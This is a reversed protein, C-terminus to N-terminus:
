HTTPRGVVTFHNTTPGDLGLYYLVGLVGSAVTLSGFQTFGNSMVFDLSVDIISGAPCSIAFINQAVADSLWSAALSKRPPTFVLGKTCTLGLPLTGDKVEDKNYDLGAAWVVDTPVVTGSAVIPTPWVTIKKLKVASAIPNVTSNTVSCVAGCVGAMALASVPVSTSTSPSQFRFVGMYVPTCELTPPLASAGKSGGRMSKGALMAPIMERSVKTEGRSEDKALVVYDSESDTRRMPVQILTRKNPQM